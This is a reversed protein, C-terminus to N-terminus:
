TRLNLRTSTTHRLGPALWLAGAIFFLFMWHGTALRTQYARHWAYDVASLTALVKGHSTLLYEDGRHVPVGGQLLALCAVFNIAAYVGLIGAVIQRRSPRLRRGFDTEDSAGGDAATGPSVSDRGRRDLYDWLSTRRTMDLPIGSFLTSGVMFVAMVHVVWLRPWETMPDIGFFTLVHVLVAFGCAAFCLTSMMTRM